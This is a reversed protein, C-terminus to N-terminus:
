SFSNEANMNKDICSKENVKIKMIIYINNSFLNLSLYPNYNSSMDLLKM